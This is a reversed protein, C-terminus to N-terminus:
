EKQLGRHVLLLQGQILKKLSVDLDTPAFPRKFHQKGLHRCVMFQQAELRQLPIQVCLSHACSGRLVASLVL